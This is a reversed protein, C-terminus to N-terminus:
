FKIKQMMSTAFIPLNKLLYCQTWIIIINLVRLINNTKLWRAKRVQFVVIIQFFLSYPLLFFSAWIMQNNHHEHWNPLSHGCVIWLMKPNWLRVEKGQNRTRTPSCDPSFYFRLLNRQFSAFIFRDAAIQLWSIKVLGNLFSACYFIIKKTCFSIPLLLQPTYYIWSMSLIRQKQLPDLCREIFCLSRFMKVKTKCFCFVM